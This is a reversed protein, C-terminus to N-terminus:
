INFKAREIKETRSCKEKWALNYMNIEMARCLEMICLELGQKSGHMVADADIDFNEGQETIKARCVIIFDIPKSDDLFQHAKQIIATHKEEINDM